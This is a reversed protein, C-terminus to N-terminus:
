GVSVAVQRRHTRTHPPHAPSPTDTTTCKPDYWILPGWFSVGFQRRSDGLLLCGGASVLVERRWGAGVYETDNVYVFHLCLVYPLVLYGYLVHLAFCAKVFALAYVDLYTFASGLMNLVSVRVGGGLGLAKLAGHLFM